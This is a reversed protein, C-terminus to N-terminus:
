SHLRLHCGAKLRCGGPLGRVHVFIQKCGFNDEPSDRHQTQWGLLEERSFFNDDSDRMWWVQFIDQQTMDCAKYFDVDM